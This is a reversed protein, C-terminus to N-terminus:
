NPKETARHAYYSFGTEKQVDITIKGLEATTVGLNTLTETVAADTEKKAEGGIRGEDLYAVELLSGRVIIEKVEGNKVQEVIQSISLEEPQSDTDVLYSYAVMVLILLVVIGLLQNWFGGPPPVKKGVGKTLGGAGKLKKRLPTKKNGGNGSRNSILKNKAPKTVPKDKILDSEEKKETKEM